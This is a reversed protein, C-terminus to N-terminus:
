KGNRVEEYEEDDEDEDDDDYEEYEEYEDEDEYDNEDDEDPGNSNSQNELTFHLAMEFAARTFELVKAFGEDSLKRAEDRSRFINIFEREREFHHPIRGVGWDQLIRWAEPNYTRVSRLIFPVPDHRALLAALRLTLEFSLTATGNEVADLLTQDSLDLADNLDNITMGAVQRLDRLSAGMEQLALSRDAGPILAKGVRISKEGTKAVAKFAANTMGAMMRILSREEKPYMRIVDDSVAQPLEASVPKNRAM